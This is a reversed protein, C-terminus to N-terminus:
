VGCARVPSRGRANTERDGCSQSVGVGRSNYALVTNFKGTSAFASYLARVVHDYMSGGLWSYPHLIVVTVAEEPKSSAYANRHM